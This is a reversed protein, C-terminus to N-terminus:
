GEYNGCNAGSSQMLRENCDSEGQKVEAEHEEPNTRKKSTQARQVLMRSSKRLVEDRHCKNKDQTTCHRGVADAIQQWTV